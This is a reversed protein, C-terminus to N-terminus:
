RKPGIAAVASSLDPCLDILKMAEDDFPHHLGLDIGSRRLRSGLARSLNTIPTQADKVGELRLDRTQDRLIIAEEAVRDLLDDLTKCTTAVQKQQTAVRKQREALEKAKAKEDDVAKRREAANYAARADALARESKSFVTQAKDRAKAEEPGGEIALLCADAHIRVASNFEAELTEINANIKEMIKDMDQKMFPVKPLGDPDKTLRKLGDFM